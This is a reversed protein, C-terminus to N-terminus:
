SLYDELEENDADNLKRNNLKRKREDKMDLRRHNYITGTNKYLVGTTDETLDKWTEAEPLDRYKVTKDEKVPRVKFHYVQFINKLKSYWKNKSTERREARNHM